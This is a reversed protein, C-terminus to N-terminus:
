ARLAFVWGIIVGMALVAPSLYPNFDAIEM